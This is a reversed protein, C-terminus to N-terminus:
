EEFFLERKWKCCKPLNGLEGSYPKGFHTLPKIYADIASKKLLLEHKNMTIIRAKNWNLKFFIRYSGTWLWVCYYALNTSINYKKLTSKVIETAFFHDTPYDLTHPTFIVDPKLKNLITFLEKERLDNNETESLKGDGWDLFLFKDMSLDVINAAKITLERRNEVVIQPDILTKDWVAEGKTLMIVYVDKKNNLLKQILGACGLIEDDPHPSVIVVKDRLNLKKSFLIAPLHLLNLRLKYYYRSIM